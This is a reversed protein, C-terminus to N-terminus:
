GIAGTAFLVGLTAALSVAVISVFVVLLTRSMRSPTRRKRASKIGDDVNDRQRVAPLKKGARQSAVEVQSITAGRLQDDDFTVVPEAWKDVVVELQTPRIGLKSQVDQLEMALELMSVQRKTPDKMMSKLLVHEVEVPVDPRPILVYDAKSIRKKLENRGNQGEGDIEFPSRGAILSYITAGLSWVESVVTGTTQETVVEPASWPVSMTFLGNGADGILSQAIGFDSLVPSGFSTKLINSPKVDRHLVGMRHATELASAMKIGIHLADAVSLPAQRFSKGFGEPCYEMVLYPRGDASVSADYVTLISPHASLQAMIDAEANFLKLVEPIAFDKLLVKVAVQRRPMDQQFLFVDAFGGSGLPRIPAYGSIQPPKSPLRTTM